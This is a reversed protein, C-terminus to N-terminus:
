YRANSAAIRDAGDVEYIIFVKGRTFGCSYFLLASIALFGGKAVCEAICFGFFPYVCGGTFLSSLASFTLARARFLFLSSATCYLGDHIRM